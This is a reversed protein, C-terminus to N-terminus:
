ESVEKPRFLTELAYFACIVFGIVMSVYIFAKSVNISAFMQMKENMMYTYSYRTCLISFVIISASIIKQLIFNVSRPLIHVLLDMSIHQGKGLAYGATLFVIWVEIYRSIEESWSLSRGIIVRFIVQLFIIITIAAMGAGAAGLIIKEFPRSVRELFNYVSKM